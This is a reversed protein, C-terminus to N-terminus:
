FSAKENRRAVTNGVKSSNVNLDDFLGKLDHESTAGVASGEINRFVRELTENLNEDTHARARVNTFLESPLIFFGKEQVTSPRAM